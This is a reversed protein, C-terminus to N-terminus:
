ILERNNKRERGMIREGRHTTECAVRKGVHTPFQNYYVNVMAVVMADNVPQESFAHLTLAYGHSDCYASSLTNGCATRRAHAILTGRRRKSPRYEIIHTTGVVRFCAQAIQNQLPVERREYRLISINDKYYCYPLVNM